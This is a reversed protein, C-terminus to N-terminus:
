NLTGKARSNTIKSDIDNELNYNNAKKMMILFDKKTGRFFKNPRKAKKISKDKKIM